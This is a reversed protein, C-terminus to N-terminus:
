LKQSNEIFFTFYVINIFFYNYACHQILDNVSSNSINRTTSCM